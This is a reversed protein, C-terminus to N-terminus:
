CFVGNGVRGHAYLVGYEEARYPGRLLRCAVLYIVRTVLNNVRSTKIRINTRKM